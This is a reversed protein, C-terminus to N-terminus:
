GEWSVMITVDTNDDFVEAWVFEIGQDFLEVGDIEEIEGIVSDTGETEALYKSLAEFPKKSTLDYNKVDVPTNNHYKTVVFKM